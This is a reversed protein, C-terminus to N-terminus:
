SLQMAFIIYSTVSGKYSANLTTGSKSFTVINFQYTWTQSGDGLSVFSLQTSNYVNALGFLFLNWGSISISTSKISMSLTATRIITTNNEISAGRSLYARGMTMFRPVVKLQITGRGIHAVVCNIANINRYSGVM